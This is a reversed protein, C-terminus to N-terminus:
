VSFVPNQEMPRAVEHGLPLQVGDKAKQTVQAFRPRLRFQGISL